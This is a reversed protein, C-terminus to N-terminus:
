AVKEAAPYLENNEKEIRKALVGFLEGTEKVWEAAKDEIAQGTPYKKLYNEFVEKIQGMEAMYKKALAQVNPDKHKELVPYLTKDETALHIKIKGALTSLTTRIKPGQGKVKSADLYPSIEKVLAVLDNHEKRFHDINSM